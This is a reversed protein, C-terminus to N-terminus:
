LDERPVGVEFGADLADVRLMLLKDSQQVTEYTVQRKLGVGGREVSDESLQAVVDFQVEGGLLGDPLVVETFVAAHGLMVARVPIEHVLNQAELGFFAAFGELRDDLVDDVEEGAPECQVDEFGVAAHREHHLAHFAAQRDVCGSM